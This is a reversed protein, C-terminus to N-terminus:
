GARERLVQCFPTAWPGLQGADYDSKRSLCTSSLWIERLNPLFYQVSEQTGEAEGETRPTAGVPVPAPRVCLMEPLRAVLYMGDVMLANAKELQEVMAVWADYTILEGEVGLMGVEGLSLRRLLDVLAAEHSSLGHLAIRLSELDPARDRNLMAPSHSTRGIAAEDTELLAGDVSLHRLMPAPGDLLAACRRSLLHGSTFSRFPDGHQAFGPQLSFIQQLLEVPLRTAPASNVILAM